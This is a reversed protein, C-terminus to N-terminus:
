RTTRRLSQLHGVQEAARSLEESTLPIRSFRGQCYLATVGAVMPGAAKWEQEVLRAFEGATAAPLKSVGQRELTRLMRHYLQLIAIQSPAAPLHMSAWLGIRDRLILLLLALGVVMMGTVLGLMGPQFTRTMRVLRSLLQATPASFTSVWRSVRERLVDSGERVGHVVALQDKASYRVFLRDWQLRLSEGLRGLSEWRSTAVAASVAPTPDMTIWGSRPFYVEVWAHADRQRVTFYGGYENWETALFGTVLRAPIGVTRLMVVMATAYHECYGTKRTFLFEELPHSLTATDAELSYRYNELLHQQIALTQGFPTTAQQIVRHALDAIQQSGGPVQLYRSRVSDPYDLASATREDAVLQSVQSTVSYRIRSSPPLPLHLGSMADAQVTLFEGHVLEAFPAAFLVATDLAELLIDQRITESPSYSPRSGAPRVLFTGDAVIGVSRQPTGSHSWSRGNYQDYALGRLYLRDKEVTPQDPLEVRMVIQPDQKVSGITGLDVQDSFGTTRLAEGHTKQLVGAGIRPIVFFIALTLVVTMVATGNTLWFFRHTIRSPFTTQCAAARTPTVVAPTAGTEQTLHYLLLTWVAALLYLLFIPVYWADTTLAASALIAMLSIAYLHRYDRRQQLTLLKIGLLMVLFHIGAPLLDQSIVMLDILFIVFACILLINWLTPSITVQALARRVFLVGGAHLLSVILIIATPIAIWLPVSQAFVLGSFAITALLISSLAFAQNFPM